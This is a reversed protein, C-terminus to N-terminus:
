GEPWYQPITSKVAANGTPYTKKNQNLNRKLLADYEADSLSTGSKQVSTSTGRGIDWSSQSGLTMGPNTRKGSDKTSTSKGMQGMKNGFVDLGAAANPSMSVGGGGSAGQAVMSAYQSMDPYADTRAEIFGVKAQEAETLNQMRLDELQLRFPTGVEQEYKLDMGAAVTTNTLGSNILNQMGSALAQRKGVEYQALAGSGFDGGPQYRAIAEDLLGLGQQYRAENAARAQEFAKSYQTMALSQSSGGAGYKDAM